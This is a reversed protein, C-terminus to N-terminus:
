FKLFSFGAEVIGGWLMRRMRSVITIVEDRVM